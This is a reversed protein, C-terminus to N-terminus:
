ARSSSNKLLPQSKKKKKEEKGDLGHAVLLTVPGPRLSKEKPTGAGTERNGGALMCKNQKRHCYKHTHTHTYAYSHTQTHMNFPHPRTSWAENHNLFPLLRIPFDVFVCRGDYQPPCHRPGVPWICWGQVLKVREVGLSMRTCIHTHPFLLFIFSFGTGNPATPNTPPGEGHTYINKCRIGRGLCGLLWLCRVLLAGTCYTCRHM